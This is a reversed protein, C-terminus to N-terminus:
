NIDNFIIISNLWGKSSTILVRSCSDKVTDYDFTPLRYGAAEYAARDNRIGELTLKM